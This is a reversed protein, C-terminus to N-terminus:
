KPFVVTEILIECRNDGDKLCKLMKEKVEVGMAQYWGERLAGCGCAYDKDLGISHIKTYAYCRKIIAVNGTSDSEYDFYDKTIFAELALTVLLRFDEQSTPQKINLNKMLRQMEVRGVTKAVQFNMKNATDWGANMVMAMMWHSDCTWRSKAVMERMDSFQIGQILDQAKHMIEQNNM